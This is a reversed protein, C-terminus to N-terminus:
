SAARRLPRMASAPPAAEHLEYTGRLPDIAEILQLFSTGPLPSFVYGQASRIGLERLYIVQEFQEVGEAVIDMRLNQALDILTEVITGSNRDTGVSDIFMKDIKIIDVGLKLMYSLGSHGTGVDDIAIRVGLGQLAAIVRRTETLNELPQRETVELVVQSLRIPTDSFIANVDQVIEEDAFHRAALNFCIKLHPRRGFASGAEDCVRRMLVRTMELILGSSEALPIFSAPPVVSGDPKRWRILVEAGRLRGSRIDVIPQYYPVFEGDRLARELEAVPNDVQRRGGLRGIVIAGALLVLALAATLVSAMPALDTQAAVLEDRPAAISVRLGFTDSESRVVLRRDHAEGSPRNGAESLPMGERTTVRVHAVLPGGQSSVQAMFQEPSVLMALGNATTGSLRRIRIIPREGLRVFDIRFTGKDGLLESRLTVRQDLPPGFETCLTRGDANVVSTEKVPMVTLTAQRMAEFNAPRCSDVGRATLDDLAALVMGIRAEALGLTRRTWQHLEEVAQREAFGRAWVNFIGAPPVALM